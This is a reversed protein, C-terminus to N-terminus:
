GLIEGHIDFYLGLESFRALVFLYGLSRKIGAM